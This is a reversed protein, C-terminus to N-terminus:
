ILSGVSQVSVDCNSPQVEDVVTRARPGPTWFRLRGQGTYPKHGCVDLGAFVHRIVNVVRQNTPPRPGTGDVAM